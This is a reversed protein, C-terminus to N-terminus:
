KRRAEKFLSNTRRNNRLTICFIRRYMSSGLMGKIMRGVCRIYHKQYLDAAFDDVAAKQKQFQKKKTEDLFEKCHNLREPTIERIPKGEAYAERLRASKEFQEYAYSVSIGSSRMRYHLLVEEMRGLRYGEQIARLIFDLDECYSVERYGQLQRYVETRLLWTPHTAFNGYKECEAFVEPLLTPVNPGPTRKEDRIFDIGSMVFDLQQARMFALEKELRTVECIDDADMRATLPENVQELLYNLSDVLGRNKRNRYISVREDAAAISEMVAWLEENDPNDLLLYLHIKEYTQELVSTVAQRLWVEKENYATMIVAITEDTM